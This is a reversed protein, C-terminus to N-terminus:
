ITLTMIMMIMLRIEPSTETGCRRQNKLRCWVARATSKRTSSTEPVSEGREMLRSYFVRCSEWSACRLACKKCPLKDSQLLLHCFSCRAFTPTKVHVDLITTCALSIIFVTLFCCASNSTEIITSNQNATSKFVQSKRTCNCLEARASQESSFRQMGAWIAHRTNLSQFDVEQRFGSWCFVRAIIVNTHLM